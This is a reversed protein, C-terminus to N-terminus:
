ESLLYIDRDREKVNSATFSMIESTKITGKVKAEM